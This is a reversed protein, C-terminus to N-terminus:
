REKRDGCLPNDFSCLTLSRCPHGFHPHAIVERTASNKPNLYWSTLDTIICNVCRWAQVLRSPQIFESGADRKPFDPSEFELTQVRTSDFWQSLVKYEDSGLWTSPILLIDPLSKYARYWSLIVSHFLSLCLCITSVIEMHLDICVCLNVKEIWCSNYSCHLWYHNDEWESGRLAHHQYGPIRTLCCLLYTM